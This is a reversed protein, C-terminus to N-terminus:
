SFPSLRPVNIKPRRVIFEQLKSRTTYAETEKEHINKLCNNIVQYHRQIIDMNQYLDQHLTEIKGNIEYAKKKLVIIDMRTNEFLTIRSQLHEILRDRWSLVINSVQQNQVSLELKDELKKIHQEFGHRIKKTDFNIKNRATMEMQKM